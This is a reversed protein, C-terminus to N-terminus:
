GRDVRWAAPAVRPEAPAAPVAAAAAAGADYNDRRARKKPPTQIPYPKRKKEKESAIGALRLAAASVTRMEKVNQWASTAALLRAVAREADGTPMKGFYRRSKELACQMSEATKGRETLRLLYIRALARMGGRQADTM